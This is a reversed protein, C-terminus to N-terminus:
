VIGLASRLAGLKDAVPEWSKISDTFMPRRVQLRSNTNVMRKTRYFELCNNDWPLNCHTLLSRIGTEPEHVLEEYSLDLIEGPLVKDWHQMLKQYRRYFRGLTGQEYCYPVSGVFYQRYLSWCTDMPNRVCHIIPATPFVLRILGILFINQTQKSVIHIDPGAEPCFSRLRKIGQQALPGFMGSAMKEMAQPFEQSTLEVISKYALQQMMDIEGAGRVQSHSALIQEALSTGSRPMGVVFIPTNDTCEKNKLRSFLESTFMAEIQDFRAFAEEENYTQLSHQIRNAEEYYFFARKIEGHTEYANALAFCVLVRAIGFCAPSTHFQHFSRVEPTKLDPKSLLVLNYLVSVNDPDLKAAQKYYSIAQEFHGQAELCVAIGNAFDARRPYTKAAQQYTILALDVRQHLMLKTALENLLEPRGLSRQLVTSFLQDTQEYNTESKDM